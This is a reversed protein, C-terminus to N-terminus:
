NTLLVRLVTKYKNNGETEWKIQRKGEIEERGSEEEATGRQREGERVWQGERGKTMKVHRM